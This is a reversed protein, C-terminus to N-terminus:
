PLPFSFPIVGDSEFFAVIAALSSEAEDFLIDGPITAESYTKRTVDWQEQFTALSACDVFRSRCAVHFEQATTRWFREDAMTRARVVGALDYLDKARVAEGPQKVKARYAPLSSLFARLKEGAIRELTYALVEHEGIRIPSISSPRLEEPAAIDLDLAPPSRVHSSLDKINIRVTLADWGLPHQTRAQPRVRLDVLEFHVPNQREFHRRIAVTLERELFSSQSERESFKQVFSECLNSDIDYSDRGRGLLLRLIRARKFVLSKKLEGSEAVSELIEDLLHSKWPESEAPKM